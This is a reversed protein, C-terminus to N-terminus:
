HPHEKSLSSTLQREWMHLQKLPLFDIDANKWLEDMRSFALAAKDNKDALQYAHGAQLQSLVVYPSDPSLGRHSLVREFERAAEEADGASLYAMGRYYGPALAMFEGFDYPRAEELAQLAAEPEHRELDVSSRESALVASNMLTDLPSQAIAKRAETEADAIDGARVLALAAAAQTTAGDPALKLANLVDERGDKRLGIDAKLAGENILAGAAFEILDNKLASERAQDFLRWSDKAKGRSLAVLAAEQLLLNQQPNGEGWQMERLMAEENNQAYAGVFCEVHFVPSNNHQGIPGNCLANQSAFDGVEMYAQSWTAYQLYTTQDSQLAVRALEVAKEPEGLMLYEIALNNVPAIDRPYIKHWLEYAEIARRVEGTTFAYYNATIYLRERDTTRGRLEFAKQFNHASAVYEGSNYYIAGLRAYAMAFQTDLDAALKYDHIADSESGQARKEEGQAFARLAALSSTTAQGLPVNFRQLTDDPEGLRRRMQESALNLAPLVDDKSDAKSRQAILQHGNSCQWATLEVLSGTDRMRLQGRLLIEGHLSRCAKLEDGITATEPSRVLERFKRNDVLRLYPSEEMKVQFASSLTGDMEHNDTETSFGGLVITSQGAQITRYELRFHLFWTLLALIVAAIGLAAALLTKIIKKPYKPRGTEVASTSANSVNVALNAGPAAVPVPSAEMVEVAAVIASAEQEVTSEAVPVVEAIFKYGQGSVTKIFLPSNANDSLAERLKTAAVRLSGLELASGPSGLRKGLEDTSVVRGPSEILILLLRLPLDQIKVRQSERLLVESRIRLEFRGFRVAAGSFPYQDQGPM